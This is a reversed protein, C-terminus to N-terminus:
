DVKRSETVDFIQRQSHMIYMVHRRLVKEEKGYQQVSASCYYRYIMAGISLCSLEDSIHHTGEFSELVLEINNSHSEVKSFSGGKGYTYWDLKSTM